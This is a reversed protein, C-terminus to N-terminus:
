GNAPTAPAAGARDMAKARRDMIQAPTASSLLTGATTEVRSRFTQNITYGGKEGLAEADKKSFAEAAKINAAIIHRDGGVNVLGVGQDRVEDLTETALKTSKDAFQISINYNGGDVGYREAIRAREDDDITKIFRINDAPIVTTSNIMISKIM